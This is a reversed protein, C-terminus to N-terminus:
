ESLSSVKSDYHSGKLQEPAAYVLTGVGTTHTSDSFFFYLTDQEIAGGVPWTSFYATANSVLASSSSNSANKGGSPSNASKQADMIINSCALGFDGIRVHCDHGHLFINRPQPFSCHCQMLKWFVAPHWLACAPSADFIDLGTSLM